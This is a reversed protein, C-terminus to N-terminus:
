THHPTLACCVGRCSAPLPVRDTCLVLVRRPARVDLEEKGKFILLDIAQTACAVATLLCLAPSDALARALGQPACGHTECM